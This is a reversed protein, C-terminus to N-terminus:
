VAVSLVPSPTSAVRRWTQLSCNTSTQWGSTTEGYKEYSAMNDLVPQVNPKKDESVDTVHEDISM